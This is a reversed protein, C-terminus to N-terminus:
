KRRGKNKSQKPEQLSLKEMEKSPVDNTNAQFRPEGRAMRIPEEESSSEVEHGFVQEREKPISQLTDEKLKQKQKL